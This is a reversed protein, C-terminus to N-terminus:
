DAGMIECTGLISSALPKQNASKGHAVRLTLFIRRLGEGRFRCRVLPAQFVGHRLMMCM